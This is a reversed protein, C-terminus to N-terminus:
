MVALYKSAEAGISLANRDDVAWGFQYLDSKLVNYVWM